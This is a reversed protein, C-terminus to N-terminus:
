RKADVPQPKSPEPAEPPEEPAVAVSGMVAPTEEIQSVPEIAGMRASSTWSVAGAAASAALGVAAVIRLRKRRVGVPCNSTLITGDKRRFFRACLNGETEYILAEAADETMASIDYVNKSCRDCFRVQDNGRMDEWSANCPSAIRVQSLMPLKRKAVESLDREVAQLEREVEGLRRQTPELSSLSEDLAARETALAERRAGLATKLDRYAM